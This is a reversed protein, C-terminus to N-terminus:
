QYILGEERKKLYLFETCILYRLKTVEKCDTDMHDVTIQRDVGSELMHFRCYYHEIPHSLMLRGVAKM